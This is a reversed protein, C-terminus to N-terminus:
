PTIDQRTHLRVIEADTYGAKLAELTAETLTHRLGTELLGLLQLQNGPDDPCPLGILDALRECTDTVLADLLDPDITLTTTTTM